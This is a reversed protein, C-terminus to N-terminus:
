FPFETLWSGHILQTPLYESEVDVRMGHDHAVCALTLPGLALLGLPSTRARRDETWFDRHAELSAQLAKNFGDTDQSALLVFLLVLPRVVKDPRGHHSRTINEPSLLQVAKDLHKSANDPQGSFYAQVAAIWRYVYDDFEDSETRLSGKGDQTPQDPAERAQRGHQDSLVVLHPGM